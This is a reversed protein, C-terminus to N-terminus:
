MNRGKCQVMMLDWITCWLLSYLTNIVVLDRQYRSWQCIDPSDIIIIFIVRQILKSHETLSTPTTHVLPTPPYYSYSPVPHNWALYANPLTEETNGTPPRGTPMNPKVYTLLNCFIWRTGELFHLNHSGSEKCFKESHM